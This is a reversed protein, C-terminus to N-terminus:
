VSGTSKTAETTTSGSIQTDNQSLVDKICKYNEVDGAVEATNVESKSPPPAHGLNITTIEKVAAEDYGSSQLGRSIVVEAIVAQKRELQRSPTNITPKAKQVDSTSFSIGGTKGAWKIPAVSPHFVDVFIRDNWARRLTSMLTSM